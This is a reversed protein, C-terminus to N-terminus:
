LIKNSITIISTSQPINYILTLKKFNKKNNFHHIKKKQNNINILINYLNHNIIYFNNKNNKQHIIYKNPKITKKFITNIINQIQKPKLYKFLLINYITKTLQKQQKNTKPYIIKNKNNNNTKPNYKKTSISQHKTYHNYKQTKPKFQKKNPKKTKKNNKNIIIYIPISKPKKTKKIKSFYNM